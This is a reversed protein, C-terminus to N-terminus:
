FLYIIIFHARPLLYETEHLHKRFLLYIYIVASSKTPVSHGLEWGTLKRKLSSFCGLKSEFKWIEFRKRVCIEGFLRLGYITLM